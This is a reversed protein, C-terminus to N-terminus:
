LEVKIRNEDYRAAAPGTLTRFQAYADPAQRIRDYIRATLELYHRFNEEAKKLEQDNFHPYLDHITLKPRKSTEKEM